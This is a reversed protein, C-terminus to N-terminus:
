RKKTIILFILCPNIKGKEANRSQVALLLKRAFLEKEHMLFGKRAFSSTIMFSYLLFVQLKM